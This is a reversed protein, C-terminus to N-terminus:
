SELRLRAIELAITRFASELQTSTTAAYAYGDTACDELNTPVTSGVDFAVVFVTIEKAKALNCVAQFRKNHITALNADSTRAAAAGAEFNNMGYLHYSNPDPDMLGDTMFVIYRNPDSNGPWASTDDKWIGQPSILRLGWIMGVDHYTHGFARFDGTTATGLYTNFDTESYEDLRKAPASCGYLQSSPGLSGTLSVLLPSLNQAASNNPTVDSSAASNGNSDLTAATGSRYYVTEPWLPHWRTADSDPVYDPDLDKPTPATIINTTTTWATTDREQICGQWKVNPTGPKTPDPTNAFTKFTAVDRSVNTYRWYPKVTYAYTKCSTSSAPTTWVPFTRTLTGSAPFTGKAYTTSASTRVDKKLCEEKTNPSVTVTVPTVANTDSKYIMDGEYYQGRVSTGTVNYNSSNDKTPLTTSNLDTAVERSPYSATNAIYAVNGPDTKGTVATGKGTILAGVNVSSSYPVFGYRIHSEPPKNTELTTRFLKVASRLASIKSNSQEEIYYGTTGDARTWTKTSSCGASTTCAMSGTVDLVFMIDSDGIDLRATCNVTQVSQTFGAMKMITMPVTTTATALVHGRTNRTASFTTNTTSLWGAGTTGKNPFNNDFFTKAATFAPTASPNAANYATADLLTGTNVTMVKRGALAGADCAQQLRVRVLYARSMDVASGALLALPISFAAMILFANGATDRALRSLFGGVAGARGRDSPIGNM